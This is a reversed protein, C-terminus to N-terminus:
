PADREEHVNKSSCLKAKLAFKFHPHPEINEMLFQTCDDLRGIMHYQFNNLARIGYKSRMCEGDEKLLRQTQLYEVKTCSQRAQSAKGQRLVKAKKVRKIVDTVLNSRTPNGVNSINNWQMHKNPM